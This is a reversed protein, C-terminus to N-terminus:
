IFGLEGDMADEPSTYNLGPNFCMASGYGCKRFIERCDYDRFKILENSVFLPLGAVSVKCETFDRQMRSKILGFLIEIPNYFPCYAPLFIPVIGCYRLYYIISEHCHIKAGDLIWISNKGPYQQVNGSKILERLCDLFNLRNFTGETMFSELLGYANIFCLLSVRPKRVFEGRVLVKTGRVSFGRKRLMGRNDFSVEDLFIINESSWTLSNVENAFRVIDSEKIQIARREVVKRTFGGERLINWITSVSISIGWHEIFKCKAEDLYLLPNLQYQQLVWNKMTADFLGTREVNCRALGGEMEYKEIWNTITTVSKAFIESIESKTKRLFFYCYLAHYKTSTSCHEHLVTNLISM